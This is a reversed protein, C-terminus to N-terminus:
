RCSRSVPARMLKAVKANVPVYSYYFDTADATLFVSDGPLLPLRARVQGSVPSACYNLNGQGDLETVWLVGNIVRAYIRPSRIAWPSSRVPKLTQLSLREADATAGTTGDVWAGGDAVGGISPGSLSRGTAAHALMAGTHPDLRAVYTPHRYGLGALLIRGRADSGLQISGPYHLHVVRDVRGSALSVRDLTGTGVWLQGGAAALSGKQGTNGASPLSVRSRVALSSPDLRWLSTQDANYENSTTVWLSGGAYLAHDFNAVFRRQAGVRGSSVDIRVLNYIQGVHEGLPIPETIYLSGRAAYSQSVPEETRALVQSGSPLSAAAATAGAHTASSPRKGGHGGGGCGAAALALVFAILRRRVAGFGPAEPGAACAALGKV